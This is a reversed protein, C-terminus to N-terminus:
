TRKRWVRGAAIAWSATSRIAEIRRRSNDDLYRRLDEAGKTAELGLYLQDPNQANGIAELDHTGCFRAPPIQIL